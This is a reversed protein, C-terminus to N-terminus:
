AIYNEIALAAALAYAHHRGFRPLSISEEKGEHGIRVSQGSPDSTVGTIQWDDKQACSEGFYTVPALSHRVLGRVRPNDANLVLRGSEPISRALYEYEKALADMKPFAELYRQTIETVVAIQPHVLSLLYRMDGSRAVGLELVLYRPFNKQWISRLAQFIIPRWRSFSDYGSPLNLIALPLGIETNFNRPNVRVSKGAARLRRAIEDRVFTKNMSGAVVIIEPRHVLLALKTILKLYYQLITKCFTKLM